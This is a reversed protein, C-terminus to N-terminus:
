ILAPKGNKMIVRVNGMGKANPHKDDACRIKTRKRSDFDVLWKKNGTLHNSCGCDIYWWDELSASDSHSAMLLVHEDDFSRAINVEESKREKNSWCNAAFHGFKKCCYCQVM